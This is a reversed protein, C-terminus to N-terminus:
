KMSISLVRAYSCSDLKLDFNSYQQYTIILMPHILSDGQCQGLTNMFSKSLFRRNGAIIENIENFYKKLIKFTPHQISGFYNQQISGLHYSRQEREIYNSRGDDKQQLSLNKFFLQMSILSKERGLVPPTPTIFLQPFTKGPADAFIDVKLKASKVELVDLPHHQTSGFTNQQISGFSNTIRQM